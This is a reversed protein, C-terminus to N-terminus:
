GQSKNKVNQNLPLNFTNKNFNKYYFAAYVVKLSPLQHDDEVRHKSHEIALERCLKTLKM